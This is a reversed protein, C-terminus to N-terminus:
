VEDGGKQLALYKHRFDAEARALITGVSGPAIRLVEAIEAYSLGQYRLLLCSQHKESLGALARRVTFREEVALAASAPDERSDAREREAREHRERRRQGARLVNYGLNTAVRFLWARLNHERSGSLPREYLKLFVEQAVDEAEDADGLLRYLLAHVSAYHRTFLTAFAEHSGRELGDLLMADSLQLTCRELLTDDNDKVV